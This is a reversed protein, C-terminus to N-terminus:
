TGDAHSAPEPLAGRTRRIDQDDTVVYDVPVEPLRKPHRPSAVPRCTFVQSPAVGILSPAGTPPIGYPDKAPKNAVVGLLACADGIIYM